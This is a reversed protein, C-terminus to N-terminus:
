DVAFRRDAFSATVKATFMQPLYRDGLTQASSKQTDRGANRRRPPDTIRWAREGAAAM